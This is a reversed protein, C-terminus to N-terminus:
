QRPSALYEDWGSGLAKYLAILNSSREFQAQILRQKAAYLDQQALLVTVYSDVGNRYRTDALDYRDQQTKALEMQTILQEELYARASLADAVERFASQITKEYAAVEISKSIVAADLSAANAGADFIPVTIQPAFSWVGEGSFLDTLKLSAIGGAGTLTIKPFFAARAAGVNANAAKLRHEAALIDPRHSIVDSPLESPIDSLVRQTDFEAPDPLDKPLPQGILLVLANEAQVLQREIDAANFRATLVQAKASKLDLESTNGVEYSRTMLKEYEQLSILTAQTQVLQEALARQALYQIAVQSILTIQVSRRNEESALYSELAQKKLSRIRGFLDLEYSTVGVKLGYKGTEKAEDASVLDKQKLGNGAGVIAPFGYSVGIRYQARLLDVNLAALRLDRNNVIAIDILKRLRADTFFARSKLDEIVLSPDQARAPWMSAVPSAPRVYGPILTCGSLCVLMMFGLTNKIM